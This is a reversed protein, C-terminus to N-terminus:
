DRKEREALWDDAKAVAWLILLGLAVLGAYNWAHDLWDM